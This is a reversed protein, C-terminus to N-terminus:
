KRPPVSIQLPLREELFIHYKSNSLANLASGSIMDAISVFTKVGISSRQMKMKLFKYSKFTEQSKKWYM